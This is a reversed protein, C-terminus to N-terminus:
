AKTPTVKLVTLSRGWNKQPTTPLPFHLNRPHSKFMLCQKESIFYKQERSLLASSQRPGLNPIKNLHPLFRPILWSQSRFFKTESNVTLSPIRIKSMSLSFFFFKDQQRLLYMWLGTQWNSSMLSTTKKANCHMLQHTFPIDLSASCHCQAILFHNLTNRQQQRGPLCSAM